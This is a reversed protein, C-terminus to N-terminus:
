TVSSLELAEADRDGLSELCKYILLKCLRNKPVM